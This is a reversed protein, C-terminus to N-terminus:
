LIIYGENTFGGNRSTSITMNAQDSTLYYQNVRLNAQNVLNLIFSIMRYGWIYLIYVCVYVHVYIYIYM